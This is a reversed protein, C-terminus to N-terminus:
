AHKMVVGEIINAVDECADLTNELLEYIEKWKIVEVANQEQKFLNMMATRFIIDAEDEVQNVKIIKDKLTKSKKMHKLEILVEKLEHTCLVIRKALEIAEPRIEKVNFMNFRHAVAEIDDAINDMEKAILFIDERDIPTIFSKNLQELIKHVQTDGHHEAEEIVRIKNEVDTYNTMLELLLEGASCTSEATEVFYDFFAEEKRTLRFLNDGEKMKTKNEYLRSPYFRKKDKM